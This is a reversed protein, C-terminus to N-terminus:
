QVAFVADTVDKVTPDTVRTVRIRSRATAPATVKWPHVGDKPSSATIVM